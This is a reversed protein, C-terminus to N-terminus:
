GLAGAEHELRAMLARSIGRGRAPPAVWVRKVEGVGDDHRRIAGCGVAEGDLYAVVFAGTPPAVDEPGLEAAYAAEEEADRAAREEPSLAGEPPEDDAAYRVGLDKTLDAVLRSGAPGDFPELRLDLPV